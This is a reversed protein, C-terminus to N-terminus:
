FDDDMCSGACHRAGCFDCEGLDDHEDNIFDDTDYDPLKLALESHINSDEGIKCVCDVKKCNDCFRFLHAHFSKGQMAEIRKKTDLWDMMEITKAINNAEDKTLGNEM